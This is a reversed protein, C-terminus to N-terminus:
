LREQYYDNVRRRFAVTRAVIEEAYGAERLTHRAGYNM